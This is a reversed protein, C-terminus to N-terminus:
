ELISSSRGSEGSSHRTGHAIKPYGSTDDCPSTSINRCLSSRTGESPVTRTHMRSLARPTQRPRLQRTTPLSAMAALQLGTTSPARPGQPLAAPIHHMRARLAPSVVARSAVNLARSYECCRLPVPSSPISHSRPVPLHPPPYSSPNASSVMKKCCSSNVM